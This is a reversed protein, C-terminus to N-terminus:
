RTGKETQIEKKWYYIKCISHEQNAKKIRVSIQAQIKIIKTLTKTKSL